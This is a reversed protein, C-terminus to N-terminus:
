AHLPRRRFAKPRPNLEGRRWWRPNRQREQNALPIVRDLNAIRRFMQRSSNGPPIRSADHRRPAIHRFTKRRRNRLRTRHVMARPPGRNGRHFQFALANRGWSFAQNACIETSALLTAGAPLDFTDGHWHLVPTDGEGLHRIASECGAPRLTIPGWGIEKLGTPYVRAGLARAMLQAGLCIGITPRNARLRMELLSLEHKLSPYLDGEYAGIPGGLVVVLDPAVPDLAAIDDVGCDAFRIQYGARELAPELSGLDEFHVHRIAIATKM